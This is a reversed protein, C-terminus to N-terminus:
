GSRDRPLRKEEGAEVETRRDGPINNRHRGKSIEDSTNSRRPLEGTSRDSGSLHRIVLYATALPGGVGVALALVRLGTGTGHHRVVTSGGGAISRIVGALVALALLGLLLGAAAKILTQVIQTRDM